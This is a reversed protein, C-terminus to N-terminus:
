SSYLIESCCFDARQVGLVALRFVQAVGQWQKGFWENLDPSATLHRHELRGHGKNWTEDHQWRRRDPAPDELLDAIDERLTPQNEKANLLYKGGLRDM